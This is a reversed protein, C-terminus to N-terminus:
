VVFRKGVLPGPKVKVWEKVDNILREESYEPLPYIFTRMRGDPLMVTIVREQVTVEPLPHRTEIRDEIVTFAIKEEKEEKESM